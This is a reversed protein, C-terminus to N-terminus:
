VMPSANVAHRHMLIPQVECSQREQWVPVFTDTKDGAGKQQSQIGSDVRDQALMLEVYLEMKSSQCSQKLEAELESNVLQGSPMSEAMEKM